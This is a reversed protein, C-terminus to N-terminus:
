AFRVAVSQKRRRMAAGIGGLGLIMMAWTSAEPVGATINFTIAGFNDGSNSDWYFLELTGNEWAPGSFNAGLTQYVGNIRGVLSGYNATHGDQSWSGFFDGGIYTGVAEGSDDTATAFRQNTDLGDADSFRPLAGASWLDDTSSSVTFVDGTALNIGTNLASGGSSSNALADVVFTAAQSPASLATAAALSAVFLFKKM